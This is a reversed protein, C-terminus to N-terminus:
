HNMRPVVHSGAVLKWLFEVADDLDWENRADLVFQIFRASENLQIADEIRRNIIGGVVTEDRLRQCFIIIREIDEHEALFLTTGSVMM